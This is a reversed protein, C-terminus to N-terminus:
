RCPEKDSCCEESVVLALPYNDKPVCQKASSLMKWTPNGGDKSRHFECCISQDCSIKPLGDDFSESLDEEKVLSCIPYVEPNYGGSPNKRIEPWSRPKCNKKPDERMTFECRGPKCNGPGSDESNSNICDQSPVWIGGPTGGNTDTVWNCKPLKVQTPKSTGRCGAWESYYWCRENKENRAIGWERKACMCPGNLRKVEVEKPHASNDCYEPDCDQGKKVEIVIEKKTVCEDNAGYSCEESEIRASDAYVCKRESPKCEQKYIPSKEGPYM